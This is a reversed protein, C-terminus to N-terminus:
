RELQKRVEDRLRVAEAWDTGRPALAEGAAVSLVGRRPAWTKDRLVDRTGRVLVPVLPTGTQAATVFAGMRFPLLGPERRFTGEPFIVLSRGARLAAAVGETDQVSQEPDFREVFVAGVRHLLPALVPNRSLERKVVFGFRPPLAATLLIADLYSQHNPALIVPGPPLRDLGSTRVPIAILRLVLKMWLRLTARRFGLTPGLVTTLWCPLAVALFVLWSWAAYLRTGLARLLRRTEPVVAALVIHLMQAAAGPPERHFAGKEYLERAASRRIKGSPTKPVTRPAALVIEDPPGELLPAVAEGIARSLAAREEAGRLATEAIVVVRETGSKPDHVGVVAVCGRRVGAIGTVAEEIETPIINRGGKIILDKARGAPFVEGNAVYGLDGTEVWDGDFLKRTAEPNRYYGGTASPGRFQLRGHEREGAERGHEDVVRVEINALPRGCGVFTLASPDGPEAPTARRRHLFDDRRVRDVRPGRGPPPFTVGLCNEALGYVPAMAERRFGQRAFREIFRELTDAHVAEAGNFALRWGSLDLDAVDHDPLKTACLDYAFNPAASVTGRERSMTRLWRPPRALFLMPSMLVARAGSYLSGLWAGILGMDHYLPLWSVFVDTSCIGSAQQMARINALLNAHSLTVGKPAGTSGSTYQLLATDGPRLPPAPPSAGPVRIDAPTVVDRLSPALSKVLQAPRHAEDSAVLVAALCSNLIGAQRKVHEEIQTAKAPPYLPVPIGGARLVGFFCSFYDRCTQLMLAVPQAPLLGRALLGAAIEGAEAWLQGYTIAQARDGEEVLTIHVRERHHTAYWELADLLTQAAVPMEPLRQAPAAPPAAAAEGAPRGSELARLLDRLTEAAMAASEPVATRFAKEIRLLLEVRALSDIGLDDQLSSDLTLSGRQFGPRVEAALEEALALLTEATPPPNLPAIM